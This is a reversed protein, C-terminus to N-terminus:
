KIMGKLLRIETKIDDTKVGLAMIQEYESVSSKLLGAKKYIRALLLHYDSNKPDLVIAQQCYKAAEKLSQNFDYMVLALRYYVLKLEGGLDLATKLFGIADDPKNFERSIDAKKLLDEYRDRKMRKEADGMKNIYEKKYPNYSSALKFNLFAGSYDDKFFAEEGLKYYAEAKKVNEKIRDDIRSRATGQDAKPSQQLVAEAANARGERDGAKELTHPQMGARVAERPAAAKLTEYAQQVKKYIDVLLHRDDPSVSRAYYSDPHFMKTKEFYAAKVRDLAAGEPIGLIASPDASEYNLYLDKISQEKSGYREAKSDQFEVVNHGTLKEIIKRVSILGFGTIRAIESASTRGDIMSLVLKEQETLGSVTKVQKTRRPIDDM